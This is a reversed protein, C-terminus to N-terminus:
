KMLSKNEAVWDYLMKVTERPSTRPEWGFEKRAKGIGAIYIKQDGPREDGVGYEVKKGTIDELIDFLELISLTNKPGGGMNYVQGRTKRIKAVALDFANLLDKVNLIDRVQKGDGYVYIKKGLTTAIIFWAVWGQDEVGWQHPGAICSCRFVVSRLGYIRSYDRVYQDACGKSCGYPSHFDLPMSEDFGLRYKPDDIVWRKKTEKMKVEIQGYVKNTSMFFLIPDAKSKRVAELVNLTGLANVVFDRMPKKVSTTVATQAATHYIIDKDEVLTNIARSTIARKSLTVKYRSRLWALNKEGGRRSLNDMITVKDKRGLHREAINSGVFGAGGTVLINM